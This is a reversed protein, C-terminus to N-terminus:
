KQWSSIMGKLKQRLRRWQKRKVEKQNFCPYARNPGAWKHFTFPDLGTHEPLNIERGFRAAVEIPAYTVGHQLFLQRHQVCLYGDEHPYGGDFNEWELGLETPLRLIRESRISVSNGVRVLQNKSDRYTWANRPYPWPAGIYDYDLFAPDWSQPNVVFGDAHVLLAFDTEIYKHLEFVVFQGWESVNHMRPVEIFDFADFSHKPRLHGLFKTASFTIHKSTYELASIHEDLEVSSLAILTVNPLHLKMENM